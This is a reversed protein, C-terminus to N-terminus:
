LSIQPFRMFDQYNAPIGLLDQSNRSDQSRLRDQLAVAARTSPALACDQVDVRADASTAYVASGLFGDNGLYIRPIRM